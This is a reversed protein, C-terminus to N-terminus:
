LLLSRARIAEEVFDRPGKLRSLLYENYAARFDEPEGFGEVKPLVDTLWGDPLLDVVEAIVSANLRESMREDAERLSAPTTLRLLV